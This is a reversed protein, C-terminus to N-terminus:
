EPRAIAPIWSLATEGIGAATSGQKEEMFPLPLDMRAEEPFSRFDRSCPSQMWWSPLIPRKWVADESIM